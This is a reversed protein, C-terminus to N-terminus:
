DAARLREINAGLNILRKDINEYGRDVQEIGNIITEGHAILAALIMTMGGRLDFSSITSGYLPTPGVILARHPDLITANAGMKVLEDIYKLRGEFMTDHILTTGNAQTSLLGFLAQLDTPIGPYPMTQVSRPSNLPLKALSYIINRTGSKKHLFRVGFEELKKMPLFEFKEEVGEIGIKGRFIASLILFTGAEIPDNILKHKVGKLKKNGEITLTHTGAGSIKVGMKKLFSILDQVHPEAAAIDIIIKNSAIGSALMLINETATVSFESLIIHPNHRWKKASFIYINGNNEVKTGMDMFAELHTDVPRAGILCGGPSVTKFEGFRALLPGVLLISSRIKGVLHPSIKEPDINKNEIELTNEDIWNFCSGMDRMIELLTLVDKIHPVNELICKQSTLLTAAIIPTASNKSGAVKVIGELNNGGKIKFFEM